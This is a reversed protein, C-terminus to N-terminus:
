AECLEKLVALSKPYTEAFYSKFEQNSDIDVALLTKDGQQTYTYNEVGGAWADVEKGSTIEKGESLIGIHEISIFKNPINEKIRSVMGGEKGKEDTGIFLIKSGKEWSGKYHSTPNFVATWTRYHKDDIMTSYVKEVPAHILIEFHLRELVAKSEVYKKFNNLIAQWGDRQLEISNTAEADFTEEVTTENGKTTFTVVVERGDSMAYAIRKNPIVESYVGEFDFGMSGDKAEMRSRFKGGTRLDNTAHPTHWDDSANNWQTIHDPDAWFKWVKEVPAQITASVTIKTTTEM